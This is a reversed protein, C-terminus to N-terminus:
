PQWGHTTLGEVCWADKYWMGWHEDVYVYTNYLLILLLIIIIIIIIFDMSTWKAHSPHPKRSWTIVSNGKGNCKCALIQSTTAWFYWWSMSLELSVKGKIAKPTKLQRVYKWIFQVIFSCQIKKVHKQPANGSQRIGNRKVFHSFTENPRFCQDTVM